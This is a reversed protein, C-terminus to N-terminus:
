FLVFLLLLGSWPIPWVMQRALVNRVTTRHWTGSRLTRIGRANLADAIAQDTKVGSARIPQIILLVNAAFANARVKGAAAGKAQAQTRRLTASVVRHAL